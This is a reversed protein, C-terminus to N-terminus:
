EKKGLKFFCPALVCFSVSHYKVVLLSTISVKKIYFSNKKNDKVFIVRKWNLMHVYQLQSKFVFGEASIILSIPHNFVFTLASMSTM